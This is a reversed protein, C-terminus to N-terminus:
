RDGRDRRRERGRPPYLDRRSHGRLECPGESGRADRGRGHGRGRGQTGADSRRHRRRHCLHRRHITKWHADTEIMGRKNTKVGLAELGLGDTFPKRGTAVLVTDADLTHESDDKRLKYTIKAKTKTAEVKQVAAGMIFELGQKKLTRQFVKAVEADIGPTVADLYEIM